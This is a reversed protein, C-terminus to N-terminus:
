SWEPSYDQRWDDSHSDDEAAKSCKDSCLPMGFKKERPMWKGCWACCECGFVPAITESLWIGLMRMTRCFMEM